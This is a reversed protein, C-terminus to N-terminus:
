GYVKAGEGITSKQLEVELMKEGNRLRPVIVVGCWVSRSLSLSLTHSLTLFVAPHLHSFGV